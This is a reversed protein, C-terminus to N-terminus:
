RPENMLGRLVAYCAALLVLTFPLGTSVAM